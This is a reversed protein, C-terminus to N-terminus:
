CMKVYSGLWTVDRKYPELVKQVLPDKYHGDFEVFFIYKFKSGIKAPRSEVKCLNLGKDEFNKLFSVLAGPEDPLKAILSTKDEGSMENKFNQSLILLRTQNDASDQINSYLIPLDNDTVNGTFYLKELCDLKVATEVLTSKQLESCNGAIVLHHPIQSNCKGFASVVQEPVERNDGTAFTLLYPHPIKELWSSGTLSDTQFFRINAGEYIVSIKQPNIQYETKLDTATSQSIAILHTAQRCTSPLFIETLLHSLRHHM